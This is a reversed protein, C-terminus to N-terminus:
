ILLVEPNEIVSKFANLWKAAAAGDVVRHDSSLTVEMVTAKRFGRENDAPKLVSQAASVALICSQPPNIIANFSKVGFMGMNSITFTGGEIDSPLIKNESAKKRMAKVGNSVDALGKNEVNRVIPTILGNGIDMAVSIDVFNNKIIHDGRWFSNCEPVEQLAYASAKVVFDNVSIKTGKKELHKNLMSRVAMLRDLECEMTVQYHPISAKSESLRRAIAKRMGTLKIEEVPGEEPVRPPVAFAGIYPVTGAVAPSAAGMAGVPKAAAAPKAKAAAPAVEKAKPKHLGAAIAARVDKEVIRGGPGTGTVLSLNLGAKAAVVKALPSVKIRGGAAAPTPAADRKGHTFQIMPQRGASEAEEAPTAEASTPAAAPAAGGVVYSAFAAVDAKEEVVIGIPQGVELEADGAQVLIKAIFGDEQADYSVTAKDTEVECLPDGASFSEGEQKLWKAIKGSSMTPSLAPLEMVMHEPYNTAPSAAPAASPPTPAPASAAPAAGGSVYSAFAAVDAQEEVLIGIPQGVELEEDGAQVLIKAIIGDEQADYSVTAKDTEIECLPDGASFSEGEQKLWKAIKGSSMTPSLAPLEMVMHEPYNTAASPPPTQVPTAAPAPTSAPASAPAADGGTMVYNAFAAVDAEEEVTIGIYAGVNIEESPAEVLIKALYADEQAEYAVTAKDTEIECFVEGANVRQGVKATWSAVKGASMTPSLAPLELFTHEPLNSIAFFRARCFANPSRLFTRSILRM